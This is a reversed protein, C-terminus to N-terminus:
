NVHMFMFMKTTQTSKQPKVMNTKVQTGMKPKKRQNKKGLWEHPKKM